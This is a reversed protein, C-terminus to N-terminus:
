QKWFLGRWGGAKTETETDLVSVPASAAPQVVAEVTEAVEPVGVTGAAVEPAPDCAESGIVWGDKDVVEKSRPRAVGLAYRGTGGLGMLAAIWMASACVVIYVMMLDKGERKQQAKHNGAQREKRVPLNQNAAKRKARGLAAQLGRVRRAHEALVARGVKLARDDWVRQSLQQQVPFAAKRSGDAPAKAVPTPTSTPAPSPKFPQVESTQILKLSPSHEVRSLRSIKNLHQTERSNSLSALAFFPSGAKSRTTSFSRRSAIATIPTATSIARLASPLELTRLAM